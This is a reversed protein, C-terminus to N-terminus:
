ASFHDFGALAATDHGPVHVGSGASVHGICTFPCTMAPELLAVSAPPVTFLLEYDDGGRLATEVDAVAVSAIAQADIHLGVGSARALRGADGVLGDSLDIAASAVGRLALGAAVRPQPQLFAREREADAPAEGLLSALGAAAGGLTGTVFLRDGAGAGDRRIARGHPVQGLVTVTAAVSGRVLDGGILDVRHERALRFFGRAFGDFWSDSARPCSLSLLAWAPAAGMAAMDSLNVALARYGVHEPALDDPFHVGAVITDTASVLHMGDAVVSVAGDDGIGLVVDDRLAPQLLYREILQTESTM